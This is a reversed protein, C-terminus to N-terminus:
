LAILSQLAQAKQLTMTSRRIHKQSRQGAKLLGAERRGHVAQGVAPVLLSSSANNSRLEKPGASFQSMTSIFSDMRVYENSAKSAFISNKKKQHRLLLSGKDRQKKIKTKEEGPWMGAVHIM